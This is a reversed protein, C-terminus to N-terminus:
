ANLNRILPTIDDLRELKMVLDCVEEARKGLVGRTLLIFKEGIEEVTLPFEPEGRAIDISSVLRRGDRLVIEGHSGRKHPYDKDL